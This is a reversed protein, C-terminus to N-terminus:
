LGEVFCRNRFACTSTTGLAVTATLGGLGSTATSEITFVHQFDVNADIITITADFGNTLRKILM